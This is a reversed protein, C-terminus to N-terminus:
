TKLFYVIIIVALIYHSCNKLNNFLEFDASVVNIIKLAVINVSIITTDVINKFSEERRKSNIIDLVFNGLTM